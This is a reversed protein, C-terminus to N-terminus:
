TLRTRTQPPDLTLGSFVMKIDCVFRVFTGM